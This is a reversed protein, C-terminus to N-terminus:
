NKFVMPEPEAYIYITGYRSALHEFSQYQKNENYDELLTFPAQYEMETDNGNTFRRIASMQPNYMGYKTANGGFVFETQRVFLACTGVILDTMAPNVNLAVVSRLYLRQNNIDTFQEATVQRPNVKEYGSITPLTQIWNSPEVITKYEPNVIRRAVHYILVGRTYIISQIKPVLVGNEFHYQPANLADILSVPGNDQSTLVPLRVTIMPIATVRNMNVPFNVSNNVVTTGFVPMTSVILPRFSFAQLLRRVVTAEDGLYITDPSDQASIKSWNTLAGVQKPSSYYTRNGLGLIGSYNAGWSWLTGNTKISYTAYFNATNDKDFFNNLEDKHYFLIM